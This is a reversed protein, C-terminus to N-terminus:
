APDLVADVTDDTIGWEEQQVEDDCLRSVACLDHYLNALTTRSWPLDPLNDPDPNEYSPMTGISKLLEELEAARFAILLLTEPSPKNHKM